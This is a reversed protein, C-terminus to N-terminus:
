QITASVGSHPIVEVSDFGFQLFLVQLQQVARQEADKIIGNMKAARKIDDIATIRANQEMDKDFERLLGTTREIVHTKHEDLYCDTIEAPPLFIKLTKGEVVVDARQLKSLDIGAKAIGHAVLLVRSDGYWKTDEIAIVKEIVYKVTVLQSIGQIKQIVAPTDLQRVQGEPLLMLPLRPLVVGVGIGIALVGGLIWGAIKLKRSAM